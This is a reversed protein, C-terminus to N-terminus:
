SVALTLSTISSLSTSQCVHILVSNDKKSGNCLNWQCEAELDPVVPDLCAKTVVM